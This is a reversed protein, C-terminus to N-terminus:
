GVPDSATGVSGVLLESAVRLVGAKLELLNM